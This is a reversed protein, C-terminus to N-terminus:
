KKTKQAILWASSLMFFAGWVQVLCIFWYVTLLWTQKSTGIWGQSSLYAISAAAAVTQSGLLLAHKPEEEQRYLFLWARQCLISIPPLSTVINIGILIFLTIRPAAFENFLSVVGFPLLAYSILSVPLGSFGLPIALWFLLTTMTASSGQM